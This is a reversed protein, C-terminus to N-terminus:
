ALGLSALVEHNRAINRRREKEIDAEDDDAAAAGDARSAAAPRRTPQRPPYLRKLAAKAADEAQYYAAIQGRSQAGPAGARSARSRRQLSERHAEAAARSIEEWAADSVTRVDRRSALAADAAADPSTDEPPQGESHQPRSHAQEEDEESSEGWAGDSGSEDEDDSSQDGSGSGGGDEDDDDDDEDDDDAAAASAHQQRAAQGRVRRSPPPGEDDEDASSLIEENYEKLDKAWRTASTEAAARRPRPRGAIPGGYEYLEYCSIAERVEAENLDEEDGDEHRAHWLAADAGQSRAWKVINGNIGEGRFVRRIKAGIWEHGKALWRIQSAAAGSAAARTRKM